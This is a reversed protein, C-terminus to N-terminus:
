EMDGHYELSQGDREEGDAGREHHDRDIAPSGGVPVTEIYESLLDDIIESEERLYFGVDDEHEMNLTEARRVYFGDDLGYTHHILIDEGLEEERTDYGSQYGDAQVMKRLNDLFIGDVFVSMGIDWKDGIDHEWSTYPNEVRNGSAGLDFANSFQEEFDLADPDIQDIAESLVGVRIKIDDYRKRGKSFRRKKIGSYQDNFANSALDELAGYIQRNEEQSTFLDSDRIGDDGTVRFIDVPKINKIYASEDRGTSVPRTSETEYEQQTRNFEARRNSCEERRQNLEEFLGVTAEYADQNAELEELEAELEAKRDRIEDTGEIEAELADAVTEELRDISPGRELEREIEQEHDNSLSELRDEVTAVIERELDDQTHDIEFLVDEEDFTVDASFNGGPPGLSFVDNNDIKNKQVRYNRHAEEKKEETKNSFPLLKEVTGEEMNMTIFAKRAEKLAAMSQEIDSRQDHFSVGIRELDRELADLQEDVPQTGVRDAEDEAEANVVESRFQELARTLSSLAGKTEAPDVGQYQEIPETADRLWDSVERDIEDAQEQQLTELESATEELETERDGIQAELEELHNELRNLKVGPNGSGDDVFMLYEIADRIRNDDISQKKVLLRNRQVLAQLETELVEALHEDITDVFRGASSGTTDVARLSGSVIDLQEDVHETETRADEIIDRFISVSEYELENFLEFDLLSYVDDLRTNLDARDLDRLGDGDPDDYNDDLFRELKTYIDREAQVAEQKLNLIERLASRGENVAEVNYRLIQPIGITFPAYDPADAFPDETGVTNYYAAIMYVIAEDFEQLLQSNQIKNGGKGDFNTPDIPLLVRDKFVQEDILGLYELESLAAFANANERIGETHNPLVGFLTIEATRQRQRLHRALDIIIGSGTGGGLGSIVAVKGTDPLDIYSSLDDDEAYAKYYMAKGLGRKRVVGTAFDLNENIHQDDVWWNEEDMGSGATIRPVASEGILDNQDNLQIDRTILKYRIDIDGTRGTGEERFESTLTAIRDRIEAIRQRDENEEEEATDLITVTVSVPNPRPQLIERLIWESELLEFTIKKGAGGISFIRDPFNM